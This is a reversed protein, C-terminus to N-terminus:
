NQLMNGHGHGSFIPRVTRSVELKLGKNMKMYAIINASTLSNTGCKTELIYPLPLGSKNQKEPKDFMDAAEGTM